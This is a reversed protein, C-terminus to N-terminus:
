YKQQLISEIIKQLKVNDGNFSEISAVLLDNANAREFSLRYGSKAALQNIFIRICRGNGERFPHIANLEALYCTIKETFIATPIAVLYHEERLKVLLKDLSTQIYEPYAFTSNGKSIRVTRFEGAWPYISSFLKKHINQLHKADFNGKVPKQQMEMDALSSVDSEFALLIKKNRIGPINILVDTGPYCYPDREITYPV